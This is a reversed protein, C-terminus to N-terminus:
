HIFADIALSGMLIGFFSGMIWYFYKTIFDEM